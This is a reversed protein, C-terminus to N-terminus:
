ANAPPKNDILSWTNKYGRAAAPRLPPTEPKQQCVRHPGGIPYVHCRLHHRSTIVITGHIRPAIRRPPRLPPAKLPDCSKAVSGRSGRRPSVSTPKQAPARCTM